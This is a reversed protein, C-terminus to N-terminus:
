NAAEKMKTEANPLKKTEANPLKASKPLHGVQTQLTRALPCIAAVNATLKAVNVGPEEKQPEKHSTLSLM